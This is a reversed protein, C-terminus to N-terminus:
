ILEDIPKNSTWWMDLMLTDVDSAVHLDYM